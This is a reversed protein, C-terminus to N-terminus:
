EQERAIKLSVVGVSSKRGFISPQGFFIALISQLSPFHSFMPPIALKGKLNLDQIQTVMHYFHFGKM